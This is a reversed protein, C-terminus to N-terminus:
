IGNAYLTECKSCIDMLQNNHGDRFRRYGEGKWVEELTRNKMSGVNFEPFKKCPTVQGSPLVDIRNSIGLCRTKNQAPKVDGELFNFLEAETLDPHFRIRINWTRALIKKMQRKLEDLMFISIRFDFSHWSKQHGSGPQMWSFREDFYEDMHEAVPAPIYWPFNLFLADVGKAEYFECFEYLQPILGDSIVAEVSLSGLYQGSRKLDLFLELNKMIKHYTGKGRIPDHVEEPGEISILITMCSSVKILSDVHHHLTVGNTCMVTERPDEALLEILREWHAYLTPEGGWLYLSSKIPRTKVFLENLIDLSLDGEKKLEVKELSHHYGGIDWQFCHTCRLNCRNTLKLGIEMPLDLAFTHDNMREKACARIGQIKAKIKQIANPAYSLTTKPQM